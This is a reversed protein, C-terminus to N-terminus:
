ESVLTCVYTYVYLRRGLGMRERRIYIKITTNVHVHVYMNTNVRVHVYLNTNVHVLVYMNSYM